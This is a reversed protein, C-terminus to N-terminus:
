ARKPLSSASANLHIIAVALADSADPPRDRMGLLTGVLRAIQEKDAAGRGVLARKVTAPPYAHVALDSQAAALLAVGRAHGLKLAANPHKAFFIDEVAVAEPEYRAIVEALGTHIALLREPLPGDEGAKIVGAAIGVLKSGHREVVGWGTRVTGPDVGLVRM